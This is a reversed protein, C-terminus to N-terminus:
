SDKPRSSRPMDHELLLKHQLCAAVAASRPDFDAGCRRRDSRAIAREAGLATREPRVVLRWLHLDDRVLVPRLVLAGTMVDRVVLTGYAAAARPAVGGQPDVALRM